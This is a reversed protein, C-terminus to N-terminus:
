VTVTFVNKSTANQTVAHGPITCAYSLPPEAAKVTITRLTGAPASAPVVTVSSISPPLAGVAVTVEVPPPAAPEVTVAVAVPASAGAANTATILLNYIGPPPHPVPPGAESTRLHQTEPYVAFYDVINMSTLPLNSVVLQGVLEDM